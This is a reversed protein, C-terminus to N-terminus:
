SDTSGAKNRSLSRDESKKQRRAPAPPLPTVRRSAAPAALPASRDLPPAANHIFGTADNFRQITLVHFTVRSHRIVFESHRFFGSIGIVLCLWRVLRFKKTM